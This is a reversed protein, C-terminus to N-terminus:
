IISCVDNTCGTEDVDHSGEVSRYDIPKIKGRLSDYEQETISIYPAQVYGHDNLPLISVSKLRRDYMSLATALDKKEEPKVTVTVSVSNDAWYHQLQAALEFQEWMTVDNKGKTFYKEKVPFSVVITNDDYSSPEM